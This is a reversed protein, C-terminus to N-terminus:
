GGYCFDCPNRQGIESFRIARVTRKLHRCDLRSHYYKGYDTVYVKTDKINEEACSPCAYYKQGNSGRLEGIDGYNAEQITLKIVPCDTSAHYAEGDGTIYVRDSAETEKEEMGGWIRFSAENRMLITKKGFLIIPLTVGYHVRLYLVNDKICSGLPVVGLSGGEIMHKAPGAEQLGQQLFGAASLLLVTEDEIVCAEVATKRGAYLLAEEVGSQVQMLLFFSMLSLLFGTFLPLVVAAEVTISARQCICLSTELTAKRKKSALFINAHKVVQPSTNLLMPKPSM